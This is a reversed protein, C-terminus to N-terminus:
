LNSLELATLVASNLINSEVAKNLRHGDGPSVIVNGNLMKALRINHSNSVVTDTEGLLWVSREFVEPNEKIKSAIFDDGLLNQIAPACFVALGTYHGEAMLKFLIAGGMSSGVVIDPKAYRVADKADLYPTELSADIEKQDLTSWQGACKDRLGVLGRTRLSPTLASWEDSLCRAKKGLPGRGELGHLFLVKVGYQNEQQVEEPKSFIGGM